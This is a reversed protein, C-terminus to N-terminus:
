LTVSMFTVVNNCANSFKEGECLEIFSGGRLRAEQSPQENAIMLNNNNSNSRVYSTWVPQLLPTIPHTSSVGKKSSERASFALLAGAICAVVNHQKSAQHTFSIQYNFNLQWQSM